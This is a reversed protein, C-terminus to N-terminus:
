DEAKPTRRSRKGRKRLMKVQRCIPCEWPYYGFWAYVQKQLFGQRPLRRLHHAGCDPCAFDSAGQSSASVSTESVSM